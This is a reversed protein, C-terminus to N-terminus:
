QKIILNRRSKSEDKDLLGQKILRGIAKAVVSTSSLILHDRIERISPVRNHKASFEKIFSFVANDDTEIPRAM